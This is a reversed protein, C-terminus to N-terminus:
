RYAAFAPKSASNSASPSSISTYAPKPPAHPSSVAGGSLPMHTVAGMTPLGMHGLYPAMPNMAMFPSPLIPAALPVAGVPAVSAAAAESNGSTSTKLKKASSGEDDSSDAGEATTIRGATFM